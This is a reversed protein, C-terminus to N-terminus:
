EHVHGPASRDPGPGDVCMTDLGVRRVAITATPADGSVWAAIAGGHLAAIAPNSSRASGSLIVPAMSTLVARSSPLLRRLVVRRGESSEEDWIALTTNSEDRTTRVHAATPSRLVALISPTVAEPGPPDPEGERADVRTAKSFTRGLDSSM